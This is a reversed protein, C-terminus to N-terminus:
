DHAADAMHQAPLLTQLQAARDRLGDILSLTQAVERLRGMQTPCAHFRKEEVHPLLADVLLAIVNRYRAATAAGPM